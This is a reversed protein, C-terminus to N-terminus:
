ATTLTEYIYSLLVSVTGFRLECPKTVHLAGELEQNLNLLYIDDIIDIIDRVCDSRNNNATWVIGELKEPHSSQSLCNHKVIVYAENNETVPYIYLLSIAGGLLIFKGFKVPTYLNM